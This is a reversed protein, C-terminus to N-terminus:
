LFNVNATYHAGPTWGRPIVNQAVASRRSEVETVRISYPANAGNPINWKYTSGYMQQMPVFQRWGAPQIELSAVDGDGNEYEVAVAFFYRNSGTNVKFTIKENPYFCQVRQYLINIRGANRLANAQGPKALLGFATGSLDFHVADNNCAGPCEDTITITVPRGSCAPNQNCLVTAVFVDGPKYNAPIISDVVLTKKSLGTTLRVSAASQLTPNLNIKWSRGFNHQMPQWAGNVQLEVFGLDGDGNQYEVVFALYNVNSGKDVRFMLKQSGYNCPVRSYEINIKGANRLQEAQGSKALAGFATGSLDFHVPDDNCSGPCQNSIVVTVASNSCAPNSSCRVQYCAGCGAGDKFLADNGAATLSSYPAKGLDGDEIGCAGGSGAGTGEGYWTAVAPAFDNLSVNFSSVITCTCLIFLTSSLLLTFNLLKAM